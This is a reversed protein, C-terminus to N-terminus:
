ESGNCGDIGSGCSERSKGEQLITESAIVHSRQRQMKKKEVVVGRQRGGESAAAAAAKKKV